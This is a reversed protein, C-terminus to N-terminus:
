KSEMEENMKEIKSRLATAKEAVATGEHLVQVQRATADAADLMGLELYLMVSLLEGKATWEPDNPYQVILGALTQIARKSDGKDREICAQVFIKAPPSQISMLHTEALDHQGARIAGLAADVPDVVPVVPTTEQAMAVFGATLFLILCASRRAVRLRGLLSYYIVFLPNM